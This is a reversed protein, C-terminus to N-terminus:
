SKDMKSKRDEKKLTEPLMVMNNIAVAAIAASVFIFPVRVSDYYDCLAGGIFPGLAAGASFGIMLPAMTRARNQVTSIDSLYAQAGAMQLAGGCGTVVRSTILTNFTTATSMILTGISAIVPGGVLTARRGYRDTWLGAPVNMALRTLGM